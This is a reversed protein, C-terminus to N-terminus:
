NASVKPNKLAADIEARLGNEVDPLLEVRKGNIFVIPTRDIGLSEGRDDDAKIRQEVAASDIDKRFRDIDLGLEAALNQFAPSPDSGRTWASRKLYLLDHM